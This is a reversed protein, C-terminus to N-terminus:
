ACVCVCVACWNYIFILVSAIASGKTGWARECLDPFNHARYKKGLSYLTSLTYGACLRPSSVLLSHLSSTNHASKLPPPHVGVVNLFTLSRMHRTHHRCANGTVIGLLVFGIPSM